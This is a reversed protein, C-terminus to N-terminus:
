FMVTKLRCLYMLNHIIMEGFAHTCVCFAKDTLHVGPGYMTIRVQVYMYVCSM